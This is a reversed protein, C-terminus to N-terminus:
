DAAHKSQNMGNERWYPPCKEMEDMIRRQLEKGTQSGMDLRVHRVDEGSVEDQCNRKMAWVFKRFYGGSQIIQTEWISDDFLRLEHLGHFSCLSRIVRFEFAEQPTYLHKPAQFYLKLCKLSPFVEPIEALVSGVLRPTEHSGFHVTLNRVNGFDVYGNRLLRLSRTRARMRSLIRHAVEGSKFILPTLAFFIVRAELYIQRSSALLPWVPLHVCLSCKRGRTWPTDCETCGGVGWVNAGTWYITIKESGLLPFPFGQLCVLNRDGLYLSYIMTRIELPLDFFNRSNSIRPSSVTPSCRSQKPQM